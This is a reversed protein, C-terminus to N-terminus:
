DNLQDLIWKQYAAFGRNSSAQELSNSVSQRQTAPLKSVDAYHIANLQVLIYDGNGSTVSDVRSDGDGPAAMTFVHNRATADVNGGSRPTKLGVQWELQEAKAVDEISEGAIVRAKLADGRSKVQESAREQKLEALLQDKVEELDQTRASIKEKLKVVVAREGPVLEQVDSSFGDKYVPDAFAASAIAPEAAIGNGGSRAFPESLEMELGLETAVKQLSDEKWLESAGDKLKSLLNAFEIEAQERKIDDAIRQQQAEFTPLEVQQLDTVTVLHYGMDTKVPASVQNLELDAAAASLEAPLVAPDIFGLDGGLNASGADQSQAKALEEFAEGADLKGKLEAILQQQEEDSGQNILIHSLRRQQDDSNGAQAVEEEFRQRVEDEPASQKAALDSLNLEIYEVVLQEPIQLQEKSAEYRQQLSDQDIEISDLTAAVPVTLYYFDRTQESVAAGEEVELPSVFDSNVLGEVFQGTLLQRERDEVFSSPTWGARQLVSVYQDSDFKGDLQFAPENRLIDNITKRSVVMGSEQAANQIGIRTVISNLAQQQFLQRVGEGMTDLQQPNIGLRQLERAVDGSTIATGNVEAVQPEKSGSTFFQEAGTFVFPISIIVVIILGFSKLNDRMNQLM